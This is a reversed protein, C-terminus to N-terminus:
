FVAGILLKFIWVSFLTVNAAWLLIFFWTFLDKIDFDVRM